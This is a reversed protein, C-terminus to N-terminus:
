KRLEQLVADVSTFLPANGDAVLRRAEEMAALTEAKARRKRVEFPFGETEVAQRLFVNIATSLNMGLSTFLADAEQRLNADVRITLNANM